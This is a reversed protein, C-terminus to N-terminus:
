SLPPVYNFFIFYGPLKERGAAAFGRHPPLSSAMTEPRGTQELRGPEWLNDAEIWTLLTLTQLKWHM